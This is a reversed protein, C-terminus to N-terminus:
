SENKYEKIVEQLKDEFENILSKRYNSREIDQKYNFDFLKNIFKDKYDLLSTYVKKSISLCKDIFSEEVNRFLTVGDSGNIEIRYVLDNDIVRYDSYCIRIFSLDKPNIFYTNKKYKPKYKDKLLLNINARLEKLDKISLNELQLEM